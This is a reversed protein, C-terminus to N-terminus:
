KEEPAKLEYLLEQPPEESPEEADDFSCSDDDDQDGPKKKSNQLSLEEDSSSDDNQQDLDPEPSCEDEEYVLLGELESKMDKAPFVDEVFQVSSATFFIGKGLDYLEYGPSISSYGVMMCKLGNDDLKNRKEKAIHAFALCGYVKWQNVNPKTGYRVEYPTTKFIVQTDYRFM